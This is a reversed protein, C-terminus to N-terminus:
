IKRYSIIVEIRCSLINSLAFAPSLSPDYRAAEIANISQRSINLREALQAQNWGKKARRTKLSIKM